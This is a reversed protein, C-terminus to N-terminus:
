KDKHMSRTILSEGTSRRSWRLLAIFVVMVGLLLAIGAVLITVVPFKKEAAAVPKRPPSVRETSAGVKPPQNSESKSVVPASTPENTPQLPLSPTVAVVPNTAELKPEPVAIKVEVPPSTETLYITNTASLIAPDSRKVVPVATPTPKPEVKPAPPPAPKYGDPYEPVELPWPPMNVAFAVFKGKVARLITLFPMNAKRQQESNKTFSETIAADFPTGVMPDTGSSILMVTIRESNAVINSVAVWAPALRPSKEYKQQQLFQVMTLAVRQRNPQTWLQLPLQGTSLKDNFTWMGITCGHGINGTLGSSIISGLTKQANEARKQMASSTEVIVLFREAPAADGAAPSASTQAVSDVASLIAVFLAIVSSLKVSKM